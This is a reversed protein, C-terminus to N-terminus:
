NNIEKRRKKSVENLWKLNGQPVFKLPADKMVTGGSVFERGAINARKPERMYRCKNAKGGYRLELENDLPCLNQSCSDFHSCKELNQVLEKNDSNTTM